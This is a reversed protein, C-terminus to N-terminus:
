WLISRHGRSQGGVTCLAARNRQPPGARSAHPGLRLATGIGIVPLSEGSSPIKRQILGGSQAFVRGSPLLLSAGAGVGAKLFERRNLKM